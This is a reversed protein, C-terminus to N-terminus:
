QNMQPDCEPMMSLTKLRLALFVLLFSRSSLVSLFFRQFSSSSLVAPFFQQFSSSSLVAPFFQQFAGGRNVPEVM